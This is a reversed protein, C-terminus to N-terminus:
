ALGAELQNVQILNAFLLLADRPDLQEKLEKRLIRYTASGRAAFTFSLRGDM